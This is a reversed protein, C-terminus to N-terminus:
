KRNMRVTERSRISLHEQDFVGDAVNVTLLFERASRATWLLRVSNMGSEGNEVPPKDTPCSRDQYVIGSCDARDSQGPGPQRYSATKSM